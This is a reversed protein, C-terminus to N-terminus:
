LSADNSPLKRMYL